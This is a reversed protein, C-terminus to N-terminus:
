GTDRHPKRDVKPNLMPVPKRMFVRRFGEHEGRDYEEWGLRTYLAINEHMLEHTYLRLERFAEARAQAEAYGLLARGLGHGQHAPAVAVNSVLLHDLARRLVILGAVEGDVELVWVAGDDVLAAYDATMPAPRRGLREVYHAYAERVASRIAPVDAPGARRIPHIPMRPTEGQDQQDSHM